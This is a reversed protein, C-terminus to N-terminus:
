KLARFEYEGIGISESSEEIHGFLSAIADIFDKSCRRKSYAGM